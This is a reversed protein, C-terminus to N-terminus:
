EGEGHAEVIGSLGRRDKLELFVKVFSEFHEPCLSETAMVYVRALSIEDLAKKPERMNTVITSKM